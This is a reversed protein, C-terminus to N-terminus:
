PCIEELTLATQESSLPLHPALSDASCARWAQALRPRCGNAAPHASRRRSRPSLSLACSTQISSSSRQGARSLRRLALPSQCASRRDVGGVRLAKNWRQLEGQPRALFSLFAPAHALRRGLAAKTGQRRM